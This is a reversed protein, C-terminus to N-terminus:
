RRVEDLLRIEECLEDVLSETSKEDPGEAMIRIKSETGSPRIVIRYGKKEEEKVRRLLTDYGKGEVIGKKDRVDVNKLIQPYRRMGGRLEKLALGTEKMIMLLHLASLIGDGTTNESLFIIHGSQEGGLIAGVKKMEELVYRDGVKARILKIGMEGLSKELGINSMVTAVVVNNTLTGCQHFYRAFIHLLVDGDLVDGEPTIAILRDGDGDFALGVDFRGSKMLSILLSPDTSGCRVNINFGTPHTNIDVVSAGLDSFIDPAVKYTSGNACDMAVSIGELSVKASDRIYGEYREEGDPLLMVRGISLPDIRIDEWPKTYILNEIEEEQDDELKFGKHSFFKIGNDSPPNHSASIVVGCDIDLSRTLYAIAPTPLVGGLLVDGGMSTIGACLAAEIMDGSARTDRGVFFLPKKGRKQNKFYLSIAKGISLVLDSTIDMGVKGRIGDTGFVCRM